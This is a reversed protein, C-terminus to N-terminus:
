TIPKFIKGFSIKDSYKIADQVDKKKLPSYEQLIEEVSMKSSLLELILEVSIRTGSIIPKGNLIKQNTTITMKLKM